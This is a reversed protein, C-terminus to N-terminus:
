STTEEDSPQKPAEAPRNKKAQYLEMFNVSPLTIAGYESRMSLNAVCERSYPFLISPCNVNLIIERDEEDFDDKLAFIGSLVVEMVFPATKEEAFVLATILTVKYKEDDLRTYKTNINMQMDQQGKVDKLAYRPRTRYHVGELMTGLLHVAGIGSM